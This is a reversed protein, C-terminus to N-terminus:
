ANSLRFEFGQFGRIRGKSPKYLCKVVLVKIFALDNNKVPSPSKELELNNL